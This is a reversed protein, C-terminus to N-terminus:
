RSQDDSDILGKAILSDFAGSWDEKFIWYCEGSEEITAQDTSSGDIEAKCISALVQIEAKSINM